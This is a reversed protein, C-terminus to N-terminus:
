LKVHSTTLTISSLSSIQNPARYACILLCPFNKRSKFEICIAEFDSEELQIKREYKLGNKIYIAVGGGRSNRDHREISYGNTDVEM